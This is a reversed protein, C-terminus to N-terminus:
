LVGLGQPRPLIQRNGHVSVRAGTAPKGSDTRVQASNKM